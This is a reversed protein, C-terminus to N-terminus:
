QYTPLPPVRVDIDILLIRALASIHQMVHMVKQCRRADQGLTLLLHYLPPTPPPPRYLSKIIPM